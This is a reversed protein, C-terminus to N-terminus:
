AALRHNGEGAISPYWREVYSRLQDNLVATRIQLLNHAHRPRWAMQQRNVFRILAVIYPQSITQAYGILLPRNEYANRAREPPVFEHRPVKQMAVMVRADFAHRSTEAGADVTLAAFEKVMGARQAAFDDAARVGASAVAM